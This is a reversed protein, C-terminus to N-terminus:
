STVIPNSSPKFRKIIDTGSLSGEEEITWGEVLSFDIKSTSGHTRRYLKYVVYGIGVYALCMVGFSFTPVVFMAFPLSAFWTAVTIIYALFVYAVVGFLTALGPAVLGILGTFFTSLMALPVAPLVLMNVVVAVISFQGIQFLLLPLIAIQTALTALFYEKLKFFPSVGTLMLEFQPVVLILGLTALFSLQFGVDYVLLLPNIVLMVAGAFLLARMMVYQRGLLLAGMILGAMISARVVTASFGVMLAFLVIAAIGVVARVRTSVFLSLVYMVFVLVLMINAGSLVVIHIIGTARFADELEDGLSSKVGLLLGAGLGVEPEPIYLQISELFAKKITLLKEIVESGQGSEVVTVNAFSVTYFIDRVALYGPYNFTRGFETEFVEPEKLKGSFSVVAGYEVLAYRDTSVLIREGEVNIVLRTSKATVEPEAVVLGKLEISQGVQESFQSSIAQNAYELRAVGSVFCVGSITILLLASATRDYRKRWWWLGLVLLILAFWAILVWGLVFFSRIFIGGAFALIGSYFYVGQM